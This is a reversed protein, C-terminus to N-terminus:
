PALRLQGRVAGPAYAPNHVNVYYKHPNRIMDRILAKDVGEVCGESYGEAPAGLPVVVPGAVNFKGIHIHAATAPDINKVALTYCVSQKHINMSFTAVGSGDPDGPGPVERDGRMNNAFKVWGSAALATSALVLSMLLVLLTLLFVSGRKGNM